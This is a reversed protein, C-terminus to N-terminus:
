AVLFIINQTPGNNWGFIILCILIFRRILFIFPDLISYKKDLKFDRMMVTRRKNEIVEYSGIIVTNSQNKAKISVKNITGGDNSNNPNKIFALITSVM